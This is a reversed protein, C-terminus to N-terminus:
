ALIGGKDESSRQGRLEKKKSSKKISKIVMM